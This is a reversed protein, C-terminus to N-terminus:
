NNRSKRLATPEQSNNLSEESPSRLKQLIKVAPPPRGPVFIVRENGEVVVLDGASLAKPDAPTVAIMGSTAVGMEVQVLRATGLTSDEPNLDVAVIAPPRNQQLILADKPVLLRNAVASTPLTVRAIMGAKLLRGKGDPPNAVRVNVPFTRTQDSEPVIAEVTGIHQSRGRDALAPLFVPATAQLPVYPITREPVSVRVYVEDLKAVEAVLDARNVWAGVETHEAVVYGDFPSRITHKAVQSELREVVAQQADRKAQQVTEDHRYKAQLFKLAAEAAQSDARAVDQASRSEDIEAQTVAQRSEFLRLNRQHRQIALRQRAAAAEKRAIAQRLDAKRYESSEELRELEAQYENLLERAAELEKGITETKLVALPANEKVFDGENIEYVKIRGDVASGIISKKLPIVIGVFTQGPSVERQIASAVVVLSPGPGQGWALQCCLGVLLLAVVASATRPSNPGPQILKKSLNLVIKARGACRRPQDILLQCIVPREPPERTQSPCSNEEPALPCSDDRRKMSVPQQPTVM